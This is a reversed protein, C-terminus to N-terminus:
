PASGISSSNTDFRKYFAAPPLEFAAKFADQWSLGKSLDGLYSEFAALSKGMILQDVAQFAQGYPQLTGNWGQPTELLELPPALAKRKGSPAPIQDQTLIGAEALSQYAMWEAMGEILWVSSSSYASGAVDEQWVHVYEHAAVKAMQWPQKGPWGQPTSLFLVQNGKEMASGAPGVNSARVDFCALVPLSSELTTSIYAQVASLGRRIQVRDEPTVDTELWLDAGSLREITGTGPPIPSDLPDLRCATTAEAHSEVLLSSAEQSFHQAPLWAVATLPLLLLSIGLFWNKV